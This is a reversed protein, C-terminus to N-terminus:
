VTPLSLPTQFLFKFDIKVFFHVSKKKNEHLHINWDFSLNIKISTIIIEFEVVISITVPIKDLDRKKKFTLEFLKCQDEPLYEPLLEQKNELLPKLSARQLQERNVIVTRRRKSINM